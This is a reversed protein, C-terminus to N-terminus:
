EPHARARREGEPLGRAAASDDHPVDDAPIADIETKERDKVQFRGITNLAAPAVRTRTEPTASAAPIGASSQM